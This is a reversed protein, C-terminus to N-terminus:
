YYWKPNVLINGTFNHEAFKALVTSRADNNYVVFAVIASLPIESYVLFEAQKRRKIDPDKETDNWKVLKVANWDVENLHQESNFFQTM